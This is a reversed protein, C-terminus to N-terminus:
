IKLAEMKGIVNDMMKQSVDEPMVINENPNFTWRGPHSRRQRAGSVITYSEEDSSEDDEDVAEQFFFIKEHFPSFVLFM